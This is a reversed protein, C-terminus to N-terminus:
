DCVFDDAGVPRCLEPWGKARWYEVMGAARVYAKFRETHRLFAYSPHWLPAVTGGLFFSAAWNADYFEFARTPAGVYPYVWALNGLRPLSQPAPAIAPATRLLRAADIVTEPFHGTNTSPVL